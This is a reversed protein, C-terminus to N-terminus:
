RRRLRADTAAPIQGLVWRMERTIGSVIQQRADGAALLPWTYTEVVLHPPDSKALAHALAAATDNRTTTLRGFRARSLPVHFHCRVEDVDSMDIRDLEPLDSGRLVDGGSERAAFQHLYRPEHFDRLQAVGAQSRGANTLVLASTLHLKGVRLGARELQRWEKIPDRFLVSQHCVDLNVQFHRRLLTEARAASVGLPQQLQARMEPAIYQEFLEIVDSATEFTTDPEPEVTLLIRKGTAREIEVLERVTRLYNHAIRRFQPAAHGWSRYGGGLTSVTGIVGDPLLTSLIRAIANTTTARAAKNWPPAYVQEKVRRAHFHQLPFANITFAFLGRDALADRLNLQARQTRLEAALDIGIRPAIGFGHAGIGAPMRDRVPVVYDDISRWFQRLTEGRHVNMEYSLLVSGRRHRLQM